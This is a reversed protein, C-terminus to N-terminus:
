CCDSDIFGRQQARKTQNRDAAFCGGSAPRRRVGLAGERSLSKRMRILDAVAAFGAETLKIDTKGRGSMLMERRERLAPLTLFMEKGKGQNGLLPQPRDVTRVICKQLHATLPFRM